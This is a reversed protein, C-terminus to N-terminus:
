IKSFHSTIFYIEVHVFYEFCCKSLEIIMLLYKQKIIIYKNGMLIHINYSM